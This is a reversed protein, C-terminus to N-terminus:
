TYVTPAPIEAFLDNEGPSMVGPPFELNLILIDAGASEFRVFKEMTSLRGGCTVTLLEAGAVSFLQPVEATSVATVPVVEM